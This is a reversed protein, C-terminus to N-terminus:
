QRTWVAFQLLAVDQGDEDRAGGHSGRWVDGYRLQGQGAALSANAAITWAHGWGPRLSAEYAAQDAPARLVTVAAADMASDGTATTVVLGADTREISTIDLNGKDRALVLPKDVKLSAVQDWAIAIADAYGTKFTLKGGDLKIATGTLRDGNKLVVTDARLTGTAMLGLMAFLFFSARTCLKLIRIM